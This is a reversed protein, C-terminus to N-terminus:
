FSLTNTCEMSNQRPFFAVSCFHRVGNHPLFCSLQPEELVSVGGRQGIVMPSESCEGKGM